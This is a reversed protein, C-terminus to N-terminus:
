EDQVSILEFESTIPMRWADNPFGQPADRLFAVAQNEQTFQNVVVRYRTVGGYVGYLVEADFGMSRFRNAIRSADAASTASGVVVTWGGASVDIAADPSTQAPAPTATQAPPDPEPSSDQAEAVTESAAGTAPSAISDVLGSAEDEEGVGPQEDVQEESPAAPEVAAIGPDGTGRLVLFYVAAALGALLLFGVLLIPVLSRRKPEREERVEKPKAHREPPRDERVSPPVPAVEPTALDEHEPEPDVSHADEVGSAPLAPPMFSDDIPEEAPVEFSDDDEFHENPEIAALSASDSEEAHWRLRDDADSEEYDEEAHEVEEVEAEDLVDEQWYTVPDAPANWAAEEITGEDVPLEPEDDDLLPPDFTDEVEDVLPDLEETPVFAPAPTEQLSEPELTSSRGPLSVAGLGDVDLNAARVLSPDPEFGIGGNEQYFRGIAPLEVQGSEELARSLESGLTRLAEEAGAEDLNLHKALSKLTLVDM